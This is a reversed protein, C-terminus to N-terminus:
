YVSTSDIRVRWRMSACAVHEALLVRERLVQVRGIHVLVSGIAKTSACDYPM